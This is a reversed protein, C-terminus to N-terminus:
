SPLMNGPKDDDELLALRSLPTQLYWLVTEENRLTAGFRTFVSILWELRYRCYDLNADNLSGSELHRLVDVIVEKAHIVILEEASCHQRHVWCQDPPPFGKGGKCTEEAPTKCSKVGDCTYCKLAFGNAVLCM